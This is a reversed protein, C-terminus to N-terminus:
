SILSQPKTTHIFVSTSRVRSTQQIRFQTPVDAASVIAPAEEPTAVANAFDDLSEADLGNADFIWDMIKKHLKFQKALQEFAAQVEPTAPM